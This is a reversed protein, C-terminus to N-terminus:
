QKQRWPERLETSVQGKLWNNLLLPFFVLKELSFKVEKHILSPRAIAVLFMVKTIFNKSKCIHYPDEDYPLLYYNNSKKSMYFWKEDIHVINNMSKFIPDHPINYDELMSLCFQLQPRKNEEKLLPKIANSHRRIVSAKLLRFASTSNTNLACALSRITTRQRFPIECIRDHDIQIRKRGCNIPKRQSVDHLDSEKSRRWIRLITRRSVSFPSAVTDIVGKKVRGDVRNQHLVHYVTAHEENSLYKLKKNMNGELNTENVEM